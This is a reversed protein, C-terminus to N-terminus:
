SRTPGTWSSTPSRTGGRRPPQGPGGGARVRLLHRLRAHPHARGRGRDARGRLGGLGSLGRGARARRGLWEEFVAAYPAFAVGGHILVRLNPWCSGSTRLRRGGAPRATARSASSSSSSGRRCAPSCASTRADRGAGRGCRPAAEWDPIAACEPGPSYRGRFGSRCGARWWARSIASGAGEGSRAPARHQRGLFLMPGGMLGPRGGRRRALRAARGLRGEPAVAFAEPTVPIVKDGATTGSTKVWDRCRGPWTSASEGGAAAREVLPRFSGRLRAGAGAGPLGGGVPHRPLRARPRVGHRAGDRGPAAARAGPRRGSRAVGGRAAAPPPGRVLRAGAGALGAIM